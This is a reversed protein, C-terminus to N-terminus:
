LSCLLPGMVRHAAAALPVGTAGGFHRAMHTSSPPMRGCHLSVAAARMAPAGISPGSSRMRSSSCYVCHFALSVGAARELRSVSWAAIQSDFRYHSLLQRGFVLWSGDSCVWM